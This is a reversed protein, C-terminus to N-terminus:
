GSHAAQRHNEAAHRRALRWGALKSLLARVQKSDSLVVGAATPGLGVHISLDTDGVVRFMEEDTADDGIAAIPRDEHGLERRIKELALGKDIGCPSLELFRHGELVRLTPSKEVIGELMSRLEPVFRQRAIDTLMSYHVAISHRKDELV